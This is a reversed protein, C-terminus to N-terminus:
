LLVTKGKKRGWFDRHFYNATRAIKKEDTTLMIEKQYLEM